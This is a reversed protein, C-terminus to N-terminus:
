RSRRNNRAEDDLIRGSRLRKPRRPDLDEPEPERRRKRRAREQEEFKLRATSQARTEMVRALRPETPQDPTRARRSGAPEIPNYRRKQRRQREPGTGDHSPPADDVGSTSGAPPELSGHRTGSPGAQVNNPDIDPRPPSSRPTADGDPEVAPCMGILQQRHRQWYQGDSPAPETIGREARSTTDLHINHHDAVEAFVNRMNEYNFHTHRRAIRLWQEDYSRRNIVVHFHPNKTDTHYATLYDFNGWETEMGFMREVWERGAAYARGRDTEAPFSIVIHTTLDQESQVDSQGPNYNGTQELWDRAFQAFNNPLLQQGPYRAARDIQLKGGRSLYRLQDVVQAATRRGGGEVVKIIAQPNTM